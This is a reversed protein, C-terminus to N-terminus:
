TGAKRGRAEVIPWGLQKRVQRVRERTVGLNKAIKVNPLNWNVGNFKRLAKTTRPLAGQSRGDKIKYDCQLMLRRATQYNIGMGRAVEVVTKGPPLQRIAIEAKAISSQTM